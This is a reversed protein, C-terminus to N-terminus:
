KGELIKFNLKGDDDLIEYTHLVETVEEPTELYCCHLEIDFLMDHIRHRKKDADEIIEEIAKKTKLSLLSDQFDVNVRLKELDAKSMICDDGRNSLEEIAAMINNIIVEKANKITNQILDQEKLKATKEEVEEAIKDFLKTEYRTLFPKIEM